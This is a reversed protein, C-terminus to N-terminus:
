GADFTHLGDDIIIDFDGCSIQAWMINISEINRQDVYYTDIRDESFQAQPDIDAGYIEANPFYDRWSRLSAGPIGNVGMNSEFSLNNTGIGCEFFRMVSYRSLNFLMFYLDAYTHPVKLTEPHVQNNPSGKDSGYEFFLEHLLSNLSNYNIVLSRTLPNRLSKGKNYLHFERRFFQQTFRKDLFKLTSRLKHIM